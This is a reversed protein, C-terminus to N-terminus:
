VFRALVSSHRRCRSAAFDNCGRETSGRSRSSSTFSTRPAADPRVPLPGRTVAAQSGRRRDIAAREGIARPRGRRAGPVFGGLRTIRACRAPGLGATTARVARRPRAALQPQASPLPVASCKPFKAPGVGCCSAASAFMRLANCHDVPVHRNSWCEVPDAIRWQESDRALSSLSFRTRPWM